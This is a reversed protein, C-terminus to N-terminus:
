IREGNEYSVIQANPYRQVLFDQLFVTADDMSEFRGLTYSYKNNPMKELCIKGHQYFIDHDSPLPEDTTLIEIKYGSYNKPIDMLQIFTSDIQISELPIVKSTEVKDSFPNDINVAERSVEIPEGFGADPITDIVTHLDPNIALLPSSCFVVGLIAIIANLKLTTKRMTQKTQKRTSSKFNYYKFM